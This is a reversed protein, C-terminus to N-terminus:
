PNAAQCVVGNKTYEVQGSLSLPHLSGAKLFVGRDKEGNSIIGSQEAKYVM